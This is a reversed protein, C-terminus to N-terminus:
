IRRQFHCQNGRKINYELEYGLKEEMCEQYEGEKCKSNKKKVWKIRLTEGANRQFEEKVYKDIKLSQNKHEKLRRRINNTHGVYLYQVRGASADGITYIGEDKPAKDLDDAYSQWDTEYILTNCVKSAMQLIFHNCLILRFM